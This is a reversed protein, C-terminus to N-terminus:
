DTIRILRGMSSDSVYVYTGDYAMDDPTGTESAAPYIQTFTPQSQAPVFTGLRNSLAVYDLTKGAILKKIGTVTLIKNFAGGTSVARAFHHLGTGCSGSYTATNIYLYTSDTWAGNGLLASGLSQSAGGALPQRSITSNPLCSGQMGLAHVVFAAAGNVAFANATPVTAAGIQRPTSGDLAATMIKGDDATCTCASQCGGFACSFTTCGTVPNCASCTCASSSNVTWYHASGRITWQGVNSLVSKPSAGNDGISFVEEGARWFLRSGSGIVQDVVSSGGDTPVVLPSPTGNPVDKDVKQIEGPTGHTFFVFNDGVAVLKPFFLGSALVVQTGTPSGGSGGGSGASGGSGTRGGSATGGSATGGTSVGGTGGTASGGTGGLGGSSVGGSASDAGGSGSDAGGSGGDAGGSGSDPRGSSGTAGGTDATGGTGSALGGSGGSAGGSGRSVGGSGGVRAGGSSSGGVGMSADAGSSGGAGDPDVLLTPDEFGLIKGCGVM